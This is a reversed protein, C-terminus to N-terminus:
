KHSRIIATGYNKMSGDHSQDFHAGTFFCLAAFAEFEALAHALFGELSGVDPCYLGFATCILWVFAAFQWSGSIVSHLM